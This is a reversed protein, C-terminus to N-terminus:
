ELYAFDDPLQFAENFQAASVEGRRERIFLTRVECINDGWRNAAEKAKVTQRKLEALRGPGCREFAALQARLQECRKREAAARARLEIAEQESPLPASSLTGM